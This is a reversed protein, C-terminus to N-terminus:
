VPIKEILGTSRHYFGIYRSQNYETMKKLRQLMNKKIVAVPRHDEKIFSWRAPNVLTGSTNSIKLHSKPDKLLFVMKYQSCNPCMEHQRRNAGCTCKNKPMKHHKVQGHM